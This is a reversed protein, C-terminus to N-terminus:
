FTVNPYFQSFCDKLAAIPYTNIKGWREHKTKEPLRGNRKCWKSALRGIAAAAKVGINLNHINAYGMVSMFGNDRIRTEIQAVKSELLSTKHEQAIQRQEMDAMAQAQMALMQIPTMPKLQTNGKTLLEKIRDNCWIAFKPSLWRAFEMAVDEHMWTGGQDGNVVQVIESPVLNRVGCLTKIFEKTSQNKLWDTPRKGFPRAMETASVMLSEGLSFTIPHGEYNRTEKRSVEITNLLGAYADQM